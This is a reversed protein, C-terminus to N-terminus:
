CDFNSYFQKSPYFESVVLFTLYRNIQNRGKKKIFFHYQRSFFRYSKKEILIISVQQFLTLLVLFDLKMLAIALAGSV